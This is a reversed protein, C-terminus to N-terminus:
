NLQIESCSSKISFNNYFVYYVNFRHQVLRIVRYPQAIIYIERTFFIGKGDYNVTIIFTAQSLLLSIVSREM